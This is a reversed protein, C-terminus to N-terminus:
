CSVSSGALLSALNSYCLQDVLGLASPAHWEIVASYASKWTDTSCAGLPVFGPEGFKLVNLSHFHHVTNESCLPILNYILLLLVSFQKSILYYVESQIMLLSFTKSSMFIYYQTCIFVCCTWSYSVTSASNLLFNVANCHITHNFFLGLPIM